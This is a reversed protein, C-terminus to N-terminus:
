SSCVSCALHQTLCPEQGRLATRSASYLSGPVHHYKADNFLIMSRRKEKSRGSRGLAPKPVLCAQFEIRAIGKGLWTVKPKFERLRQLKMQLISMIDMDCPQHSPQILSLPSPTSGIHMLRIHVDSAATVAILIM